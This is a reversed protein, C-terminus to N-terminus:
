TRGSIRSQGEGEAHRARSWSAAPLVTFVAHFIGLRIRDLNYHFLTHDFTDGSEKGATQSAEVIEAEHEADGAVLFINFVFVPLTVQTSPRCRALASSVEVQGGSATKLSVFGCCVDAEKTFHKKAQRVKM